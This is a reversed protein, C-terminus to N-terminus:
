RDTTITVTVFHLIKKVVLLICRVLKKLTPDKETFKKM